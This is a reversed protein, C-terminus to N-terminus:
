GVLRAILAIDAVGTAPLRHKTQYERVLRASTQGFVGDAKIDMGAESLGLQVLRVDLGRMLPSQVFLQRTGPQPGAYCGPPTAALAATSIERGRVVLPLDLGWYGQDLLRQFADMRYVTARLDARSSSALWSRRSAVYAAVWRKEGIGGIEGAAASARDRVTTWSGHVHSDYVVAVGLPSTIGFRTAAREAKQWYAEDFFRDQTDRMVPDDASARLVNHLKADNDLSLDRSAFRPLFPALRDGFRAGPNACYRALLDHLNGSGLTTQSRGFTLHGTDGEILTVQGYKGLVEGTEFINVIAEATRKQTTTLM